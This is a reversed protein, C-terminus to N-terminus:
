GAVPCKGLATKYSKKLINIGEELQSKQITLPPRFRITKTGCGLIMLGNHRSEKIVADRAHTDPLDIACFLGKGRPNSLYESEDSWDAILSQLHQGADAAHDVLNDEEIVELIRDFRVM